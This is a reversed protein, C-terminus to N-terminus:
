LNTEFGLWRRGSSGSAKHITKSLYDQVPPAPAV